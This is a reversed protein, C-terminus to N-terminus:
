IKNKGTNPDVGLYVTFRYFTTGNKLKYEKIAKHYKTSIPM